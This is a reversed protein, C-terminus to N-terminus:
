TLIYIYEKVIKFLCLGAHDMAKYGTVNPCMDSLIGDVKDIKLHILLVLCCIHKSM